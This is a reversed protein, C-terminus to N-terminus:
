SSFAVPARGAADILSVPSGFVYVVRSTQARQIHVIDCSTWRGTVTDDHRARVYLDSYKKQTQRYGQTGVWQFRPDAGVGTKALLAGYPKYRYSNVVNANQDMTATVSGLADTLM